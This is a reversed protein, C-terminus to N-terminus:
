LDIGKFLTKLLPTTLGGHHVFGRLAGGNYQNTWWYSTGGTADFIMPLEAWPLYNESLPVTTQDSITEGGKESPIGLISLVDDENEHPEDVFKQRAKMFLIDLAAFEHEIDDPFHQRKVANFAISGMSWYFEKLGALTVPQFRNLEQTGLLIWPFLRGVRDHSPTVVGLGVKGQGFVDPWLFNWVPAALYQQRAVSGETMQLTPLGQQFWQDLYRIFGKDNGRTIFDGFVPLKGYCCFHLESM